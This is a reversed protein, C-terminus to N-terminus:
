QINKNIAKYWALEKYKQNLYPYQDQLIYTTLGCHKNIRERIFYDTNAKYVVCSNIYNHLIENGKEDLFHSYYDQFDFYLKKYIRDFHQLNNLPTEENTNIANIYSALAELQRTDIVSITASRFLGELSNYYYFYDKAFSILDPTNKWIHQLSNPYISTFGPSIIETSSAVIYNTKNRLEYAVEIGSMFCSEFIIFEFMKPPISKAFDIMEMEDGNDNLISRSSKRPETLTNQPIWGSSHSFLILGYQRAPYLDQIEILFNTFFLPDAMNAYKYNKIKKLIAENKGSTVEVLSPYEQQTSYLIIIKQSINKDINYAQNISEIKDFVEDSLNNNGGLYFIFVGDTSNASLGEEDESTCFTCLLIAIVFKLIQRM